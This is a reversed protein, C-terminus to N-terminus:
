KRAIIAYDQSGYLYNAVTQMSKNFEDLNDINEGKLKPISEELKSSETFLIQVDEFGAKEAFYKLTLPHVPREHSPDIYFAHTYIALSTPNPTEMILYKGEELKDYANKCLAVIQEAKLHEVLQGAFIGDVKDSIERLYSIADGSFVNLGKNRCYIVFEEYFDVGTAEIGHEKLMELFEGRGCGLDLVKKSGKFYPLYIEQRKRILEESGRFYNEFSFYDIDGYTDETFTSDELKIVTSEIGATAVNKEKLRKIESKVAEIKAEIMEPKIGTQLADLLVNNNRVNEELTEFRKDRFLNDLIANNNRVNEELSEIRRLWDQEQKKYESLEEKLELIQPEIIIRIFEAIKKKWSKPM